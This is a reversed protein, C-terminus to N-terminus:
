NKFLNTAFHYLNDRWVPWTHGGPREYYEYDINLEDFRYLMNQCNEYAIDEKGGMAVWFLDLNENIMDTSDGMFDYQAQAIEKQRPLWGSSFVGLHSFLDTNYIGAYLTQLGG